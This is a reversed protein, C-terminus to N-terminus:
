GSLPHRIFCFVAGPQSPTSVRMFVWGHDTPNDLDDDEKNVRRAPVTVPVSEDWPARTQGDPFTIARGDAIWVTYDGNPEKQYRDVPYADGKGCCSQPYDLNPIMQREMWKTTPSNPDFGHDMSWAPACSLVLLAAFGLWM